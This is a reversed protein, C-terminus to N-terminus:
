RAEDAEDGQQAAGDSGRADGDRKAGDRQRARNDASQALTCQLSLVSTQAENTHVVTALKFRGDGGLRFYITKHASVYRGPEVERVDNYLYEDRDKSSIYLKGNTFRYLATSAYKTTTLRSHDIDVVQDGRCLLNPLGEAGTAVPGALLLVLAPYLTKTVAM